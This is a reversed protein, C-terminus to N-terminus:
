DHMEPVIDTASVLRSRSVRSLTFTNRQHISPNLNEKRRRGNKLRKYLYIKSFLLIHSVMSMSWTEISRRLLSQMSSILVRLHNDFSLFSLLVRVRHAIGGDYRAYYYLLNGERYEGIVENVHTEGEIRLSTENTSKYQKKQTASLRSLLVFPIRLRSRSM